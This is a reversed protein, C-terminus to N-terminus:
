SILIIFIFSWGKCGAKDPVGNERTGYGDPCNECHTANKWFSNRECPKCDTLGDTSTFGPPCM